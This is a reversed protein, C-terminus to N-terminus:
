IKTYLYKNFVKVNKGSLQAGKRKKRIQGGSKNARFHDQAMTRRMLKGTKTIKIRTSVSKKM